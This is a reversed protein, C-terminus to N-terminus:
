LIMIGHFLVLFFGEEEGRLANTLAMRVLKAILHGVGDEIGNKRSIGVSLDGHFGRRFCAHYAVYRFCIKM